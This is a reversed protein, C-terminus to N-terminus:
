HLDAEVGRIKYKFFIIYKVIIIVNESKKRAMFTKKIICKVQTQVKLAKLRLKQYYIKDKRIAKITQDTVQQDVDM